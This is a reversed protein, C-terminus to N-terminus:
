EEENDGGWIINSAATLIEDPSRDGRVISHMALDDETMGREVAPAHVGPIMYRAPGVQILLWACRDFNWRRELWRSQGHQFKVRILTTRRAPREASKLEVWFGGVGASAEVDPTSRSLVNEIRELHCGDARAKALWRWLSRERTKM